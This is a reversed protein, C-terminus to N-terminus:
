EAFPENQPGTKDGCDARKRLGQGSMIGRFSMLGERVVGNTFMAKIAELTM